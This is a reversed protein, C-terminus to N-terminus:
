KKELEQRQWACQLHRNGFRRCWDAIHMLRYTKKQRGIGVEPLVLHRSYSRIEDHFKKKFKM